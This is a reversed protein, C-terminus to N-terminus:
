FTFIPIYQFVFYLWFLAQSGGRPQGVANGTVIAVAYDAVVFWATCSIVGAVFFVYSATVRSIYCCSFVAILSGGLALAM